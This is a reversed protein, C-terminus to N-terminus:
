YKKLKILTRQELQDATTNYGDLRLETIEGRLRYNMNLFDIRTSKDPYWLPALEEIMAIYLQYSLLVAENRASTNGTLRSFSTADSLLEIHYARNYYLQAYNGSICTDAIARLEAPSHHRYFYDPNVCASHENASSYHSTALLLTLLIARKIISRINNIYLVRAPNKSHLLVTM